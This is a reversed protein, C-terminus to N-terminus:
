VILQIPRVAIITAINGRVIVNAITRHIHIDLPRDEHIFIQKLLM